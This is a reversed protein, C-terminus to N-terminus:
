LTPMFGNRIARRLAPQREREGDYHPCFGGKLFGLGDRMPSLREGFSDTIGGEFWCMAGASVGCLVVGARWAANLAKDMKHIRWVEIMNATSGGGVYIVDQGCLFETLAPIHSHFLPLHTPTFRSAPFARYFTVVYNDTDGSATPVFCVKPKRRRSLGLIFRDLLPNDPEMPFGGGGMAVIHRSVVKTRAKKRDTVTRT